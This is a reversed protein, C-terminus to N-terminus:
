NSAFCVVVGRYTKKEEMKVVWEKWNNYNTEFIRNHYRMLCNDAHSLYLATYPDNVNGLKKNQAKRATKAERMLRYYRDRVEKDSEKHTKEKMTKKTTNMKNRHEISMGKLICTEEIDLAYLAYSIRGRQVNLVSKEQHIKSLREMTANYTALSDCGM